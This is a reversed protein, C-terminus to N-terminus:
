EKNEWFVLGLDKEKQREYRFSHSKLEEGEGGLSKEARICRM